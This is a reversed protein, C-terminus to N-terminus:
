IAVKDTINNDCSFDNYFNDFTVDVKVSLDKENLISYVIETQAQINQYIIGGQPGGGEIHTEEDKSFSYEGAKRIKSLTTKNEEVDKQYIRQEGTIVLTSTPHYHRHFFCKQNPEFRFLMEIIKTDLDVNLLKYSFGKYNGMRKWIVNASWLYNDGSMM